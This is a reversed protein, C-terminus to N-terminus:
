ARAGPRGRIASAVARALEDTGYPKSLRPLEDAEGPLLEAYGTALIVPLHPHEEQIRRALEVGTMGPMAHDTIVLQIGPQTALAQLADKGNSAEYVTHGMDELSALTGMSVLPDDDVILVTLGMATPALSPPATSPTAQREEHGPRPLLVTVRTGAGLESEIRMAGGSQIALGQV